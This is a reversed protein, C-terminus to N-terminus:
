GLISTRIFGSASDIPLRCLFGNEKGDVCIRCPTRLLQLLPCSRPRACVEGGRHLSGFVSPSPARSGGTGRHMLLLDSHMFYLFWLVVFSGYLACLTVFCLSFTWRVVCSAQPSFARVWRPWRGVVPCAADKRHLFSKQFVPSVFLPLPFTCFRAAQLFGCSM